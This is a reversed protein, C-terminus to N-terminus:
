MYDKFDELPENFNDPTQLKGKFIGFVPTAKKVQNLGKVSKEVNGSVIDKSIIIDEQYLFQILDNKKNKDLNSILFYYILQQKQEDTLKEAEKIIQEVTM